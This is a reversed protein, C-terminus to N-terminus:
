KSLDKMKPLSRWLSASSSMKWANKKQLVNKRLDRKINKLLWYNWRLVNVSKPKKVSKQEQKSRLNKFIYNMELIKSTNKKLVDVNKRM